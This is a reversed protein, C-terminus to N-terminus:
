RAENNEKRNSRVLHMIGIALAGGGLLYIIMVAVVSITDTVELSKPNFEMVIDHKGAPVRMARLVYNVRGIPAEKGDITAKWGWPFYIESFVVIGPKASSTNYQLRNPEYKTLKVSATSDATAKGLTASFSHDAVAHHRTDLTDLAAMEANADTVYSVNDVWWAHGLADPNVEAYWIPNGANDGIPQNQENRAIALFYKTNLMNIVNMNGKTIQHKILDAYRTLKAAHYGGITKHFYSSRAGGFGDIDYVRFNPDKDALIKRDADTMELTEEAPLKETFNESNVYRKDVSYLDFLCVLTLAGVFIPTSKIRRSVFLYCIATGIIMFLASRIADASVMSLRLRKIENFITVYMPDDLVEAERLQETENVSMGSGMISPFIWLLVCVATISGGFILVRKSLLKDAPSILKGEPRQENIQIMRHITMMALVPLCFEVVVLISAVARFRNYGPFYDIFLRSFFELNHGLSLMWALLSVGWLAWMVPNDKRLPIAMLALMFIIVGVYVPGNTMPQNGFYQPFQNAFEAEEYSLTSTGAQPLDMVGLRKNEAGVPKITAGGKVNPIILTLSEDGGYSWQTIFDFDAGSKAAEGPTTLETARGRETQKAYMATNYLSASNAAVAVLGAALTCGTAIGWRKWAHDRRALVLAAIMLALVVFLFYYSMQIHNSMLQLAGFLSALATGALYRGRYCLIIGGLTPPIYALTVFKWIHGAGIIIIFYSSFAWAISGFLAVYWRMKMCLAMIFFGCMMIFLLNAPAPLGLSYVKAIWNLLPASAYSPAIQFTPMGGFLANTWRTTKGTAEHYQQAEHGNAMGQQMDHQELVRGDIADPYFYALSVLAMLAVCLLSFIYTRKM